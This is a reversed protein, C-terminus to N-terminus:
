FLLWRMVLLQLAPGRGVALEGLWVERRVLSGAQGSRSATRMFGFRLSPIGCITRAEPSYSLVLSGQVAACGGVPAEAVFLLRLSLCFRCRGVSADAVLMLSAFLLCARLAGVMVSTARRAFTEWAVTERMTLPRGPTLGVVSARTRLAM